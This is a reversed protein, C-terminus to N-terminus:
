PAVNLILSRRSIGTLKLGCEGVSAPPVRNELSGLRRPVFRGSCMILLTVNAFNMSRFLSGPLCAKDKLLAPAPGFQLDYKEVPVVYAGHMEALFRQDAFNHKQQGDVRTRPDGKSWQHIGGDGISLAQLDIGPRGQPFTM